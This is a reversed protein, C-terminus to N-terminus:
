ISKLPLPAPLLFNEPPFRSAVTARWLNEMAGPGPVHFLSTTHVGRTGSLPWSSSCLSSSGRKRKESSRGRTTTKKERRKRRFFLSRRAPLRARAHQRPSLVHFPDQSGALVRLHGTSLAGIRHLTRLFAIGNVPLFGFNRSIWGRPVGSWPAGM